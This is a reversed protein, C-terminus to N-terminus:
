YSVEWPQTPTKVYYDVNELVAKRSPNSARV